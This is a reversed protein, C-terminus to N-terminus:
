DETVKKREFGLFYMFSHCSKISLGKKSDINVTYEKLINWFKM